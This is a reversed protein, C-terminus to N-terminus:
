KCTAYLQAQSVLLLYGSSSLHNGQESGTQAHPDDFKDMAADSHAHDLRLWASASTFLSLSWIRCCESANWRVTIVTFDRSMRDRHYDFLVRVYFHTGTYAFLLIITLSTLLADTVGSSVSKSRRMPDPVFEVRSVASSLLPSFRSYSM